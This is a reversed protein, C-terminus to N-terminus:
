RVEFNLKRVKRKRRQEQWQLDQSTFGDQETKNNVVVVSNLDVATFTDGTVTTMNPCGCSHPSKVETGCLKCRVVIM